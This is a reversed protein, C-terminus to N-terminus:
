YAKAFVVRRNSKGGCLICTGTQAEAAIPICRITVTLDEKIKEECAPNECWHSLAFGGHIEPKESNKPTFYDQFDDQSDISVTNQERFKLAREFLHSQIDDLTAVITRVFADRRVSEKEKHGRDRRGVFVSDQAIDRPGIEVRLPIGKKIWDWARGGIERDDIEVTIKRGHYSVEKLERMLAHTFEMVSAKDEAKKAIPMLVVHASALRPPLVLGDDDSHTM